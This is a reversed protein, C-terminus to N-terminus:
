KIGETVFFFHLAKTYFIVKTGENSEMEIKQKQEEVAKREHQEKELELTLKMSNRNHDDKEETMHKIRNELQNIREIKVQIEIKLENSQEEVKQFLSNIKERDKGVLDRTVEAQIRSLIETDLSQTLRKISANSVFREYNIDEIWREMEKELNKERQEATIKGEELKDKEESIEVIQKRLFDQMIIQSRKVLENHDKHESKFSELAAAEDQLRAALLAREIKIKRFNTKVAM